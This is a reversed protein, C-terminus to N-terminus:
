SWSRSPFMPKPVMRGQQIRDWIADPKVGEIAAMHHVTLTAPLSAWQGDWIFPQKKRTNLPSM